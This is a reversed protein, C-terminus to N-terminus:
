SSAQQSGADNEQRFAQGSNGQTIDQASRGTERLYARSDDDEPQQNRRRVLQPIGIAAAAILVGLVVAVITIAMVLTM